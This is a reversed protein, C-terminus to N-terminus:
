KTTTGSKTAQGSAVSLRKVVGETLDIGGLLVAQKMIVVDVKHAAAEAKIANDIEGELQSELSSVRGQLRKVEDDINTQLRKQLGELEAPPKNAKKADEYQKNADEVLKQVKDESHKLEEAAAQAKGYATVVKDRDIVGIVKPAAAVQASASLGITAAVLAGFTAALVKHSNRM